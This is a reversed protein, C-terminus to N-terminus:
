DMQIIINNDDPVNIVIQGSYDGYTASITWNGHSLAISFTQSAIDSYATIQQDNDNNHALINIKDNDATDEEKDDEYDHDLGVYQLAKNINVLGAGYYNDIGEVGLDEATEKLIHKIEEPNSIGTSYLLSVIGSVHPTAMSTGQAWTYQHIPNGNSIYGATSLITNYNHSIIFNDGGPAVLDLEPGFNSYYAREKTPGIAGVSIVEPYRAPYLIPSSGNNGAAAVITVNRDVAYKVADRLSKSDVSGALSLNIVNAGNDVAWHIGAILASYDGSGESNIVRVPMISVNWNVGAIGENNNTMAGIIGAVHTGHSFEPDTDTPDNDHDIFDYGRVINDKLDPHDPLIGTDIVAVTIDKSGKYNDWTSELGLMALNWQQIFAPDNPTTQVHVLYEPEIYSILPNKILNNIENEKDNLKVKYMDTSIQNIVQGKGKLVSNQLYNESIEENVKIIYEQPKFNATELPITNLNDEFHSTTIIGTNAQSTSLEERRNSELLEVIEIKGHVIVKDNRRNTDRSCGALFISIFLIIFVTKIIRQCTKSM